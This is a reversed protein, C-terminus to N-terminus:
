ADSDARRGLMLPATRRQARVFEDIAVADYVAHRETSGLPPQGTRVTGDTDRDAPHDARVVVFRYTAGRETSESNGQQGFVQDDVVYLGASQLGYQRLIARLSRGNVNHVRRSAMRCRPYSDHDVKENLFAM